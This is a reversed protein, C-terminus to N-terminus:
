ELLECLAPEVYYYVGDNRIKRKDAAVCDVRHDPMHRMEQIRAPIEDKLGHM